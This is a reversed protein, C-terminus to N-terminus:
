SDLLHWVCHLMSIRDLTECDVIGIIEDEDEANESM